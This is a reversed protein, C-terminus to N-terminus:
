SETYAALKPMVASTSRCYFRGSALASSSSPMKRTGAREVTFCVVRTFALRVQPLGDVGAQTDRVDLLAHAGGTLEEVREAPGGRPQKGAKAERQSQQEKRHQAGGEECAVAMRGLMKISRSHCKHASALEASAAGAGVLPVSVSSLPAGAGAAGRFCPWTACHTSFCATAGLRGTL